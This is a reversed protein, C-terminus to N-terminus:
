KVHGLLGLSLRKRRLSRRALEQRVMTAREAHWRAAESLDRGAYTPSQGSKQEVFIPSDGERVPQLKAANTCIKAARRFYKFARRLDAKLVYQIAADSYLVGANAFYQCLTQDSLEGPLAAQPDERELEKRSLVGSAANRENLHAMTLCDLIRANTPEYLDAFEAMGRVYERYARARHHRKATKELDNM